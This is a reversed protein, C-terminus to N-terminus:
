SSRNRKSPEGWADKLWKRDTKNLLRLKDYGLSSYEYKLGKVVAGPVREMVNYGPQELRKSYDIGFSEVAALWYLVSLYDQYDQKKKRRGRILSRISIAAESFAAPLPLNAIAFEYRKKSDGRLKKIEDAWFADNCQDDKHKLWFSSSFEATEFIDETTIWM